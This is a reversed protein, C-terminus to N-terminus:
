SLDEFCNFGFLCVRHSEAALPRGATLVSSTPLVMEHAVDERALSETLRM